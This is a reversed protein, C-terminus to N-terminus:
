KTIPMKNPINIPQINNLQQPLLPKQNHIMIQQPINQNVNLLPTQGTILTPQGNINRRIQALPQQNPFLLTQGNLQQLNNNQQLQSLSFRGFYKPSNPVSPQHCTLKVFEGDISTTLIYIKGQQTLQFKQTNSM